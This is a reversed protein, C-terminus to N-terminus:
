VIFIKVVHILIGCHVAYIGSTQISQLNRATRVGIRPDIQVYNVVAVLFPYM